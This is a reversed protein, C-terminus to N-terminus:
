KRTKYLDLASNGGGLVRGASDSFIDLYQLLPSDSKIKGKNKLQQLNARMVGNTMEQANWSKMAGIGEHRTKKVQEQLLKLQANNIRATLASNTAGLLDSAISARTNGMNATAGGPTGAGGQKYALIPNLGSRRMDAMSRQYQTNSMREQFDMQKQALASNAKNAARQGSAGFLSGAISSGGGILAAITIPDM